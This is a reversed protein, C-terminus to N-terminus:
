LLLCSLTIPFFSSLHSLFCVFSKTNLTMSDTLLSHPRNVLNFLHASILNHLTELDHSSSQIRRFGTPIWQFASMIMQRKLSYSQIFQVSCSHIYPSEDLCFIITVQLLFTGSPVSLFWWNQSRSQFYFQGFKPQIDSNLFAHASVGNILTPFIPFPCLCKLLFCSFSKHM